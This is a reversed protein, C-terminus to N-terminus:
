LSLSPLPGTREPKKRYYHPAVMVTLDYHVTRPVPGRSRRISIKEVAVLGRGELDRLFQTELSEELDEQSLKLADPDCVTHWM